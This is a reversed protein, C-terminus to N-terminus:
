RMGGGGSVLWIEVDGSMGFVSGLFREEAVM